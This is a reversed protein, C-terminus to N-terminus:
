VATVTNKPEAAKVKDELDHCAQTRTTGRFDKRVLTRQHSSLMKQDDKMRLFFFLVIITRDVKM